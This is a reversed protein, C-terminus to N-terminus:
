ESTEPVKAKKKAIEQEQAITRVSKYLRRPNAHLAQFGYKTYFGIPDRAGNAKDESTPELVDVLMLASGVSTAARVTAVQADNLLYEGLYPPEKEQEELYKKFNVDVGLRGMLTAPIQPYRPLTKTLKNPIDQFDLSIASLSYYGRVVRQGKVTLVVVGSMANRVERAVQEKIYKDIAHVGSNFKTSDHSDNWLELNLSIPEAM